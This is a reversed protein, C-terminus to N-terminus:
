PLKLTADLTAHGQALDVPRGAKTLFQFPPEDLLSLAATISSSTKLHVVAPPPKVTIDPVTFTSGAVDINGGKPAEIHGRDVVMTYTNGQISAYGRGSRIPPLAKLFRVDADTFEYTLSVNPQEGPTLRLASQVNFLLGAQVNRALWDRTQPIVSVPWLALLQSSSIKNLHSNLKAQWGKETAEFDGNLQIRRDGEVLVLQGVNLDFPDLKLRLDVHGQSFRVPEVFLGKPDVKVDSISVQGLISKPLGSDMDHLYAQGTATARLQASQVSARTFILKRAQPDYTFALAASEFAIPKIATGPRVQGAGVNLAGELANIQGSADVSAHLDGSIPADIVKLFTLAPSQAAVDASPVRDVRVSIRAEPSHKQTVFTMVAQAPPGKQAAIGFGLEVSVADSTQVLTLRGDGI